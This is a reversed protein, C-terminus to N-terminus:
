PKRCHGMWIPVRHDTALASHRLIFGQIDMVSGRVRRTRPRSGSFQSLRIEMDLTHPTLGELGRVFKYFIRSSVLPGLIIPPRTQDWPSELGRVHEMMDSTLRKATQECDSRTATLHM